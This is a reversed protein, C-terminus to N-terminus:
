HNSFILVRLGAADASSPMTGKVVGQNATAANMGCFAIVSNPKPKTM